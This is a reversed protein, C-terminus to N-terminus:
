YKSNGKIFSPNVGSDFFSHCLATLIFTKSGRGYSEGPRVGYCEERFRNFLEM